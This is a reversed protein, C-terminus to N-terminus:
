ALKIRLLGAVTGMIVDIGPLSNFAGVVGLGQTADGTGSGSVM